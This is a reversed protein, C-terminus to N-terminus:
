RDGADPRKAFNSSLTSHASRRQRHQDAQDHVADRARRASHRDEQREGDALFVPRDHSKRRNKPDFFTSQSWRRSPNDVMDDDARRTRSGAGFASAMPDNDGQVDYAPISGASGM